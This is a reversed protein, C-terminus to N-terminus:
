CTQDNAPAETAALADTIPAKTILPKFPGDETTTVFVSFTADTAPGVGTRCAAVAVSFHGNTAVANEVEWRAFQDRLRVYETRDEAALQFLKMGQATELVQLVFVGEDREGTDSREAAFTLVAGNQAVDVGVPLDIAARIDAPDATLPSLSALSLVTSPNVHSCAALFVPLLIATIRM